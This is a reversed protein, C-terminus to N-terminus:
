SEVIHNAREDEYNLVRELHAAVREREDDTTDDDTASGDRNM